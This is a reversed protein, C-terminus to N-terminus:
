KYNTIENFTKDWQRCITSISYQQSRKVASFSMKLRKNDDEMIYAMKKAALEAPYVDRKPIIIGDDGDKIIDYVAPYSAYVAPVVGFSMCEALVLPFGELDSTLMLISARQYYKVPNQFGVFRVRKLGLEIVKEELSNRDPGDGVFTLRWDPFKEELLKWTQIIRFLRKSQNEM